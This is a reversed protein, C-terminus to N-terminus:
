KHSNYHYEMLDYLEGLLEKLRLQQAQSLHHQWSIVTSSLWDIIEKPRWSKTELTQAIEHREKTLHSVQNNAKHILDKKPLAKFEPTYDSVRVYDDNPPYCFFEYLNRFHLAMLDLTDNTVGRHGMPHVKELVEINGMQLYASLTGAIEYAVHELYENLWDSNTQKSM